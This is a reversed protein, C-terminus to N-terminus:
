MALRRVGNMMGLEVILSLSPRMRRMLVVRNGSCVLLWCVQIADM